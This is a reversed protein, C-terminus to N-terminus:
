RWSKRRIAGALRRAGSRRARSLSDLAPARCSPGARRPPALRRTGARGRLPQIQAASRAFPRVFVRAQTRAADRPHHFERALRACRIAADLRAAARPGSREARDPLPAQCSRAACGAPAASWARFSARFSRPLQTVIDRVAVRELHLRNGCNECYWSFGDLERPGRRREVVLRRQRRSAASFAASGCAAPIDRGRPDACGDDPGVQVTRLVMDGEIQFFFETAPDHHFDKRSNPGGVAMVIFESDEFLLKNGVPPKLLHRNRDIWARLDFPPM